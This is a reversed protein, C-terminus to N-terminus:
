ARKPQPNRMKARGALYNAMEEEPNVKKQQGIPAQQRQGGPAEIHDNSDPATSQLTTYRKVHERVLPAARDLRQRPTLNLPQQRVYFDTLALEDGIDRNESKWDMFIQQLKAQEAQMKNLDNLTERKIEERFGV